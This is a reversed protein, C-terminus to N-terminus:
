QQAPAPQQGPESKQIKDQVRKVLAPDKQAATLIANYEDVSMGPSTQVAQVMQKSAETQLQQKATADSTAGIKASYEQRIKDVQLYAVAFAEIKQDSVTAATGSSNPQAQTPQNEQTAQQAFAPNTVFLLGLVTATASAASIYRTIM